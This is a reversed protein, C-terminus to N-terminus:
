CAGQRMVRLRLGPECHGWRGGAVWGGVEMGAWSQLCGRGGPERGDGTDPAVREQLTEVNRGVVGM